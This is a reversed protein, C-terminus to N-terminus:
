VLTDASVDRLRSGVEKEVEAMGADVPSAPSSDWGRKARLPSDEEIILGMRIAWDDRNADGIVKAAMERRRSFEEQGKLPKLLLNYMRMEGAMLGNCVGIIGSSILLLCALLLSGVTSANGSFAASLYVLLTAFGGVGKEIPSEERLWQGATARKIDNTDGTMLVWREQSLVILIKTMRKGPALEERTGKWGEKARRRIVTVNIVRAGLLMGLVALGWWDRASALLAIVIITLVVGLLYLSSVWPHARFLDLFLSGSCSVQSVAVTTLKGTATAGQLFAVTAQNEIRFVYGTKTSGARPNEGANILSADRQCHIGPAIFLMDVFSASGTLATRHNISKLDALAILGTADLSIGRISAINFM